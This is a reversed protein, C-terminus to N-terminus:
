KMGVLTAEDQFQIGIIDNVNITKGYVGSYTWSSFSINDDDISYIVVKNAVYEFEGENVVISLSKDNYDKYAVLIALVM